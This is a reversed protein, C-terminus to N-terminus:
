LLIALNVSNKVEKFHSGNLLCKNSHKLKLGLINLELHRVLTKLMM